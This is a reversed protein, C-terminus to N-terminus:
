DSLTTPLKGCQELLAQWHRTHQRVAANFNQWESLSEITKDSSVGEGQEDYVSKWFATFHAPPQQLQVLSDVLTFLRHTHQHLKALYPQTEGIYFKHFVNDVIRFQSSVRQNFCLPKDKIRSLLLSDALALQQSAYQMSLRLRGLWKSAGVVQYHSELHSLMSFTKSDDVEVKEDIKQNAKKNASDNVLQLAGAELEVLSLPQASTSFLTSFEQSALTANWVVSSLYQQKHALAQELLSRSSSSEELSSLCMRALRIFQTDYLFQQTPEMVRGLGSNRQGIHRQLECESLRLFELLNISLPPVALQLTRRSPYVPVSTFVSLKKQADVVNDSVQLSNSLRYFYNEFLDSATYDSRCATLSFVVGLMLLTKISPTLYSFPLLMILM